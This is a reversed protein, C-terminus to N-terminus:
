VAAAAVATSDDEDDEPRLFTPLYAGQRYNRELMQMLVNGGQKRAERYKSRPRPDRIPLFMRFSQAERYRSARTLERVDVLKRQRMTEVCTACMEVKPLGGIVTSCSCATLQARDSKSQNILQTIKRMRGCERGRVAALIFEGAARVAHEQEAGPAVGGVGTCGAEVIGRVFVEVVDEDVQCYLYCLSVNTPRVADGTATVPSKPSLSVQEDLPVVSKLLQYGVRRGSSITHIGTREVWCLQDVVGPPSASQKELWKVGFYRFQPPPAQQEDGERSSDGDREFTQVVGCGLLEDGFQVACNAHMAETTDAYLGAMVTDLSGRLRGVCFASVMTSPSRVVSAQRRLAAGAPVEEVEESARGTEGSSGGDSDLLSAGSAMSRLEVREKYVRLGRAECILAWRAPDVARKHRRVFGVYRQVSKAVIVDCSRAYAALAAREDDGDLHELEHDGLEDVTEVSLRQQSHSHNHQAMPTEGPALNDGGGARKLQSEGHM